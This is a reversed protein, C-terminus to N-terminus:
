EIAHNSGDRYDIEVGPEVNYAYICYCIGEGDDEISYAEMLVGRAVLEDGVFVPTVRYRVHNGTERIYELVEMENDLMGNINMSRTGTILNREEANAGCLSFAILHCRNYLSGGDVFDYQVSQWGTPKVEYISERDEHPLTDTSLIADATGCRGFLDLSSFHVYSEPKMEEDLFYPEDDNIVIWPQGDYEPIQEYEFPLNESHFLLEPSFVSTLTLVFGLLALSGASMVKKREKKRRKYRPLAHWRYLLLLFVSLTVLTFIALLFTSAQVMDNIRM